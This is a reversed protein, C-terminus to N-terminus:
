NDYGWPFVSPINYDGKVICHADINNQLKNNENMFITTVYVNNIKKSKLYNYSANITKGSSIQEDILIVNKGEINDDIGECIMYEPTIDMLYKEYYDEFVNYARKKCLFKKNSIKIKYNKINLKQSIYDSIIAGGTKIGIVADYKINKTKCRKENLVGL